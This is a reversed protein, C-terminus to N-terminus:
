RGAHERRVILAAHHHTGDRHFSRHPRPRQRVTHPSAHSPRNAAQWRRVALLGPIVTLAVLWAALYFPENGPSGGDALTRAVDVAATVPNARAVPQLWGALRDIPTFASSIFAIPVMPLFLARQATEPDRLRLALWSATIGIATGFAAADAVIALMGPLGSRVKFGTVTAVGVLLLAQALFVLGESIVRGALVASRAMPLSRFRDAIGSSADLVVGLGTSPATLAANEMIIGPVLYQRYSAGPVSALGSFVAEFLILMVVPQVLPYVLRGPSSHFVRLQRGTILLADRAARRLGPRSLGPSSALGTV